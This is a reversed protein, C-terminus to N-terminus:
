YRGVNSRAKAGLTLVLRLGRRMQGLKKKEFKTGFPNQYSAILNRGVRGIL